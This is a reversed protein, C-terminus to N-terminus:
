QICMDEPLINGESILIDVTYPQSGMLRNLGCQMSSIIKARTL